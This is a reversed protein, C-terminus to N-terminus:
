RWERWGALRVGAPRGADRVVTVHVTREVGVPGYARALLEIIGAGDNGAATDNGCAPTGGDRLPDCDTERRDDGVWVAVYVPVHMSGAPLVSDVMGSSFVQWRPNSRGWPREATVADMDADGCIPRACRLAGTEAQLDVRRGDPMVRPGPPGDRFTSGVTGDLVLSWDAIAGLERTARTMALDAAAVAAAADRANGAIQTETLTTITLALALAAMLATTTMAVLLAIGREDQWGRTRQWGREDQWGSRSM